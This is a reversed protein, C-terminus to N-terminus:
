MKTLEDAIKRVGEKRLAVVTPASPNKHSSNGGNTKGNMIHAFSFSSAQPTALHSLFLGDKQGWKTIHTCFEILFSRPGAVSISSSIARGVRLPFMRFGKRTHVDIGWSGGQPPSPWQGRKFILPAPRSRQRLDILRKTSRIDVAM